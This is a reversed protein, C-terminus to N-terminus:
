VERCTFGTSADDTSEVDVGTIEVWRPLVGLGAASALLSVFGRSMLKIDEIVPGCLSRDVEGSKIRQIVSLCDSAIIIKSFEEEQAFLLARRVAIAEAIEPVVVEDYREGCAALFSGVHNRAVVGAGM